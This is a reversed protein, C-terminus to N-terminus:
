DTLALPLDEGALGGNLDKGGIVAGTRRVYWEEM